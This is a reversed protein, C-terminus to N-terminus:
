AGPVADLRSAAIQRGIAIIEPLPLQGGQRDMRERLSEGEVFPM